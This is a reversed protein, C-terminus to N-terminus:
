LNVKKFVARKTFGNKLLTRQSALYYEFIGTSISVTDLNNLGM